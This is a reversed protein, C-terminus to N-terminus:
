YEYFQYVIVVTVWAKNIHSNLPGYFTDLTNLLTDM